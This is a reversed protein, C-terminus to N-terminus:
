FMKFLESIEEIISEDGEKIGNAICHHLHDNLILNSLSRLSKEAASLQILIDKCYRDEDVMKKIGNIQGNIRNLRDKISKKKQEDRYTKKECCDSM